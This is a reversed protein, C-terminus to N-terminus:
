NNPVRALTREADTRARRYRRITLKTDASVPMLAVAFESGGLVHSLRELPVLAQRFAKWIPLALLDHALKIPIYVFGLKHPLRVSAVHHPSPLLWTRAVYRA